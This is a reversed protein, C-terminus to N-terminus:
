QLQCIRMVETEYINEKLGNKNMYHLAEYKTGFAKIKFLNEHIYTGNACNRIVFIIGDADAKM